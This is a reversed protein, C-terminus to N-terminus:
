FELGGSTSQLDWLSDSELLIKEDEMRVEGCTSYEGDIFPALLFGAKTFTTRISIGKLYGADKRYGMEVLKSSLASDGYVQYFSMNAGNILARAVINNNRRIVAIRLVEHEAYCWCPHLPYGKVTGEAVELIATALFDSPKKGMCSDVLSGTYAEYISDYDSLMEVEGARMCNVIDMKVKDSMDPFTRSLWRGLSLVELRGRLKDAESMYAVVFNGGNIVEIDRENNAIREGHEQLLNSLVKKNSYSFYEGLGLSYVQTEDKLTESLELLRKWFTKSGVELIADVLSPTDIELQVKSFNEVPVVNFSAIEVEGTCGGEVYSILQEVREPNVFIQPLNVEFKELTQTFTLHKLLLGVVERFRKVHNEFEVLTPKIQEVTTNANLWRESHFDLLRENDIARVEFPQGGFEQHIVLMNMLNLIGRFSNRVLYRQLPNFEPEERNIKSIAKNRSTVDHRLDSDLQNM